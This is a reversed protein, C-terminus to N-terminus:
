NVGGHARSCSVHTAPSAGETPVEARLTTGVGCPSIIELRGGLAETRDKLGILGSGGDFGAGGVGDDRVAIRAISDTM